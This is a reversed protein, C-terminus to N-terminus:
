TQLDQGRSLPGQRQWGHIGIGGSQGGGSILIQVSMGLDDIPVESKVIGHLEISSIHFAMDTVFHCSKNHLRHATIDSGQVSDMETQGRRGSIYIVLVLKKGWAIV